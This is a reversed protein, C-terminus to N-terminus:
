RRRRRYVPIYPDTGTVPGPISDDFAPRNFAYFSTPVHYPQRLRAGLIAQTITEFSAAAPPIEGLTNFLGYARPVRYAVVYRLGPIGGLTEPQAPIDTISAHVAAQVAARPTRPAYWAVIWLAM